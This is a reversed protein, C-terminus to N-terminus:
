DSTDDSEEDNSEELKKRLTMSSIFNILEESKPEINEEPLYHPILYISFNLDKMTDDIKENKYKYYGNKGQIFKTKVEDPFDDIKSFIILITPNSNEFNVIINKYHLVNYNLENDSGISLMVNYVPYELEHKLLNQLGVFISSYKKSM